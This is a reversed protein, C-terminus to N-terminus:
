CVVHQIDDSLDSDGTYSPRSLKLHHNFNLKINPPSIAGKFGWIDGFIGVTLHPVLLLPYLRSRTNLNYSRNPTYM